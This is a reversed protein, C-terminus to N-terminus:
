FVFMYERTQIKDSGWYVYINRQPPSFDMFEKQLGPEVLKVKIEKTWLTESHISGRSLKWSYVKM